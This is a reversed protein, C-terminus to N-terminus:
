VEFRLGGADPAFETTYGFDDKLQSADWRDANPNVGKPYSFGLAPQRGENARLVRAVAPADPHHHQMGNTSFLWRPSVVCDLLETSLNNQSGHHPLKVADVHLTTEHRSALLRRISRILASPVADGTLLCSRGDHEALVAISSGNAASDDETFQHSALEEVSETDEDGLTSPLAVGKRHMKEALEEPYDPSEPDLENDDLEKLWATKLAATEVSGPSLLTLKMGGELEVVPLDGGDGVMVLGNGFGENWKWQLEDLQQGLIEGDIAGLHSDPAQQLHRRDNFWFDGVDFGAPPDTLLKLVGGIHDTDIHTVIMLELHREDEPLDLIRKRVITETPPTGADILVRFPSAEPGYEIWLADGQQAPLMTVRFM